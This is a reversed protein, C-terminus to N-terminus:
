PVWSADPQEWRQGSQLKPPPEGPASVATEGSTSLLASIRHLEGKAREEAKGFDGSVEAETFWVSIRPPLVHTEGTGSVQLDVRVLRRHHFGDLERAIAEVTVRPTPANPM